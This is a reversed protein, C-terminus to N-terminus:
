PGDAQVLGRGALEGLFRLADARATVPDIAFRAALTAAVADATSGGEGLAEWVSTGTRNLVYLRGATGGVVVVRGDLERWAVRRDRRWTGGSFSM